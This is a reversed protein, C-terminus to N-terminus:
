AMLVARVRALNRVRGYPSEANGQRHSTVRVVPLAGAAAAGIFTRRNVSMINRTGRGILWKM